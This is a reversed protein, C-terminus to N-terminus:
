IETVRLSHVTLTSDFGTGVKVTGAMNFNSDEKYQNIYIQETSYFRLEGNLKTAVENKGFYMEIDVFENAPAIGKWKHSEWSDWKPENVGLVGGDGTREMYCFNMGACEASISSRTTKVRMNIKIPFSFQQQSAFTTQETVEVPNNPYILEYSSNRTGTKELEQLKANLVEREENTYIKLERVPFLEIPYSCAWDKEYDYDALGLINFPNFYEWGIAREGNSDFWEYKENEWVWKGLDFNGPYNGVCAAYLGGPYEKKELPPQVEMDDPITVWINGQDELDGYVFMRMDPKIKLLNTDKIFKEIIKECVRRDRGGGSKVDGRVEGLCRIKAIASPPRYVIHVSQEAQKRLHESAQNLENM